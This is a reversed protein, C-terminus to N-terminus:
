YGNNGGTLPVMTGQSDEYKLGLKAAIPNMEYGYDWSVKIGNEELMRNQAALAELTELSQLDYPSPDDWGLVYLDAKIQDPSIPM